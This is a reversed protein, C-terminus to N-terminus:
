KAAVKKGYVWCEGAYIDVVEVHFTGDSNYHVIGFNHSWNTPRGRLFPKDMLSICGMSWAGKAGDLHQVKAVQADHTHGYIVSKGLRMAHDRTHNIGTWHGGHYYALKGLHLFEGYPKWGYGRQKLKYAVPPAYKEALYPHAQVFDDLWTWCHNGGLYWRQDCGVADLEKDFRDMGANGYFLERDLPPLQYELPPRKVKKYKWHSISAAEIIDGLNIFIDPKVIKIAQLACSEARPDVGGEKCEPPAYHQDPLIFATAPKM